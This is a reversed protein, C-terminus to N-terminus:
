IEWNSFVVAGEAIAPEAYGGLTMRLDTWHARFGHQILQQYAEGLGSQCRVSVRRLDSQLAAAEVGALLGVLAEGDRAVLKLVRLDDQPRGAALAVAHYLAFGAM